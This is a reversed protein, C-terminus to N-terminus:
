LSIIRRHVDSTRVQNKVTVNMVIIMITAHILPHKRISRERERSRLYNKPKTHVEVTVAGQNLFIKERTM